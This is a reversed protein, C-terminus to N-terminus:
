STQLNVTTLTRAIITNSATLAFSKGIDYVMVEWSTLSELISKYKMMLTEAQAREAEDLVLRKMAKQLRSMAARTEKITQVAAACRHQGALLTSLLKKLGDAFVEPFAAMLWTLASSAVDDVLDTLSVEDRHVGIILPHGRTDVGREKFSKNLMKVAEGSKERRNVLQRRIDLDVTKPVNPVARGNLPIKAYGLFCERAYKVNSDMRDQPMSSADRLTELV